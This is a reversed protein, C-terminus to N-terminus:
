AVNGFDGYVLASRQKIALGLREEALIAVLNRTFFDAHETSVEVRAAWRDYLTAAAMFNGVLFSDVAMAQTAVVPVGFLNPAVTAQPDGLIYRGDADKLLRIRMWDAPHLIIGDAPFEALAAQLIATGVTDLMTPAALGLPDAYATANTVLGSLNAGTGDGNLLQTEEALMLGYRLESDILDRLMPSDDLVQRSAPIWHAIVTTPVTQLAFALASEPKLATEPVTAANSTRGTQAVYEVSNSSVQITPLLERVTMRRKPMMAAAPDRTPQSLAGASTAGTTLTTKVELRFRGPRSHQDAFAKLGEQRVFQEGWSPPKTERGGYAAGRAVRQELTFVQETLGDLQTMKAELEEAKKIAGAKAKLEALAENIEDITDKPM